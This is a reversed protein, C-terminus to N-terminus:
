MKEQIRKETYFEITVRRNIIRGEPNINNGIEKKILENDRWRTIVYPKDPGYGKYTFRTNHRSLWANLESDSSLGLLYMLYMRINQYEKKAREKALERNRFNMGIIDTNGAVEVLMIKKPELAKQIFRRAIYEVRSEQFVSESKRADFLFQVLILTELERQIKNVNVRIPESFRTIKQGLRDVIDLRVRYERDPSILNGDENRWDWPVGEPINGSGMSLVRFVDGNDEVIAVCYSDVGAEVNSKIVVFNMQEALYEYDKAAWKGEIPRFLLGEGSICITAKGQQAQVDTNAHIFIRRNFRNIFEPGLINELSKRINFARDFALIETRKENEGGFGTVLYIIEPNNEMVEKIRDAEGRLIKLAEMDVESSNKDFYIVPKWDEFGKVKAYMYARRNEAEALPKDEVLHEYIEGSRTELPDYTKTDGLKVQSLIKPDYKIMVSRVAKARSKALREGFEYLEGDSEPNYYGYIDIIIDPNETLREGIVSLIYQFRDDVVSEMPDFFVAPIIPEEERILTVESIDLETEVPSAEGEPLAFVTFEVFGTNNTEDIEKIEGSPEPIALGNDDVSAFIQYYGKGPPVFEWEIEYDDGAAIRKRITRVPAALVWGKVPDNFYLTVMVKKVTAEGVNEVLAKINITEGIIANQPYLSMKSTKIVLDFLPKPPPALRLTASIKHSTAGMRQIGSTPYLFAYDIQLDIVKRNRYSAGLTIEELNVGSRLGVSKTAWYEVGASPKLAKKDNVEDSLFRLDFAMLIDNRYKYSAGGRIILPERLDEGLNKFTMDPRNLNGAYAGFTLKSNPRVLFGADLAYGFKDSGDDFFPDNGPNLVAKRLVKFNFGLYIKNSIGKAYSFSYAGDQWRESLLQSLSIGMSGLMDFHHIYSVYGEGIIDNELNLFLKSFMGTVMRDKFLELGAPNWMPAFGDDAVAVFTRGMGLSRPGFQDNELGFGVSFLMLLVILSVKKM